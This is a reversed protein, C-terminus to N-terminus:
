TSNMLKHSIFFNLINKMLLHLTLHMSWIKEWWLVVLLIRLNQPSSLIRVFEIFTVFLVIRIIQCIRLFAVSPCVLIRIETSYKFQIEDYIQFYIEFYWSIFTWPWTKKEKQKRLFFFCALNIIIFNMTQTKCWQFTWITCYDFRAGLVFPTFHWIERVCRCLARAFWYM